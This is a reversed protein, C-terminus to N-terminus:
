PCSHRQGDNGLYTQSRVDYSRFRQICYSVSEQPGPAVETQVETYGPNYGYGYGAPAYGSGYYNDDYGYGGYGYGLGGGILAGTALGLGLGAAG